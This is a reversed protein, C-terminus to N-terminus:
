GADAMVGLRPDRGAHLSSRLPNCATAEPDVAAHPTRRLLWHSPEHGPEAQASRRDRSGNALGAKTGRVRVHRVVFLGGAVVEYRYPEWCAPDSM